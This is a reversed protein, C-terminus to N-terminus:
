CGDNNGGTTVSGTVTPIGAILANVASSCWQPNASLALPGDVLVLAPASVSTVQAAGSITLGYPTFRASPGVATLAPLDVTTTDDSWIQLESASVLSPYSVVPSGYQVFLKGSVTTLAPLAADGVVTVDGATALAPFAVDGATLADTVEVLSPLNWTTGGGVSLTDATTLAALDVDAAGFFSLVMGGAVAGLSSLDVAVPAVGPCQAGADDLIATYGGIAALSPLSIETQDCTRVFLADNSLEFSLTALPVADGEVATLVPASIGSWLGLTGHVVELAPFDYRELGREWPFDIALSHVERLLPLDLADVDTAYPVLLNGTLTVLAPLHAELRCAGLTLDGALALAPLDVVTAGCGVLFGTELSLAGTVEALVPLSLDPAPDEFALSLEGAHTLGAFPWSQLHTESDLRVLDVEALAPVDLALADVRDFLLDGASTLAPADLTVTGRTVHVAGVTELAGLTVVVPETGDIALAGGIERLEPLAVAALGTAGIVVDGTVICIGALADVDAQSELSASGELTTACPPTTPPTTTGPPTPPTTGSTPPPASSAGGGAGGPTCAFLAVLAIV